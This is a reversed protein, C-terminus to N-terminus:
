HVICSNVAAIIFQAFEPSLRIKDSGFNLAGLSTGGVATISKNPYLSLFDDKLQSLYLNHNSWTAGFAPTLNRGTIYWPWRELWDEDKIEDATAEMPYSTAEYVSLIRKAGVGYAILIDGPEVGNPRRKSFNLEDDVSDFLRDDQVPRGTVGIPKLWYSCDSPAPSPPAIHDTLDLDVDRVETQPNANVFDTAANQMSYLDAMPVALWQVCALLENELAEIAKVDSIEVGWEHNRALGNETFNASSVIAAIYRSAREFIYVKGHLRNDVSIKCVTASQRFAPFEILTILSGIKRIQEFSNPVITTILHLERLSSFDVESLFESFDTMLFPSAILVRDAQGLLEKVRFSHNDNSARNALLRINEVM